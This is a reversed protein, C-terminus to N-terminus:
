YRRSFRPNGRGHGRGRARGGRGRGRGHQPRSAATNLSKYENNLRTIVEVAPLNRIAEEIARRKAQRKTIGVGEYSSPLGNITCRVGVRPEEDPTLAEYTEFAIRDKGPFTEYLLATLNKSPSKLEMDISEKLMPYYISWVTDLSCGSDLYIAGAVSEFVDGLLKVVSDFDSMDLSKLEPDDELAMRVKSLEDYVQDNFYQIFLDYNYKMAVRAFSYNNVLASRSATMQGPDFRTASTKALTITVLFDLIADGLFELREYSRTVRTPSTAHTFAQILYSPDQFKYGLITEFKVFKARLDRYQKKFLATSPLDGDSPEILATPLRAFVVATENLEEFVGDRFINLGLWDIALIAEFEGGYILCSGVISEFLDALDKPRMKNYITLPDCKIPRGLAYALIDSDFSRGIAYVGLKNKKALYTFHTNGVLRSRAATLFGENGQIQGFLVVSVVYKLYSDGLHELGELNYVQQAKRQTLAELFGRERSIGPCIRDANRDLSLPPCISKDVVAARKKFEEDENVLWADGVLKVELDKLIDVIAQSNVRLENSLKWLKEACRASRELSSDVSLSQTFKYSLVAINKESYESLDWDAMKASDDFVESKFLSLGLMSDYNVGAPANEDGDSDCDGPDTSGDSEHDDYDSDEECDFEEDSLEDGADTITKNNVNQEDECSGLDAQLELATPTVPDLVKMLFMERRRHETKAMFERSLESVSLSNYISYIIEPKNYCQLVTAPSDDFHELFQLLIFISKSEYDDKVKKAPRLSAFGKSITKLEVVPQNVTTLVSREYKRTVFEEFTLRTGPVISKANMEHHVKVVILLASKERYDAYVERIRVVDGQAIEPKYGSFTKRMRQIDLQNSEDLLVFYCQCRARLEEKFLDRLGLVRTILKHTFNLLENHVHLGPISLNEQVVDLEVKMVGYHGHLEKPSNDLNTSSDVILGFQPQEFLDITDSRSQHIVPKYRIRLLKYTRESFNRSLNGTLSLIKPEFYRVTPDDNQKQLGELKPELPEFNPQLGSTSLVKDTNAESIRTPVGHEDLEKAEYLARVAAVAASDDAEKFDVKYEGAVGGNLPCGAPLYLITRFLLEKRERQYRIGEAFPILRCIRGCYLNLIIKAIPPTIRISGEQSTFCDGKDETSYERIRQNDIPPQYQGGSLVEKITVEFDHFIDLSQQTEKSEGLNCLAVFTSDRQRARGRSQVFERFNKARDYRIVTSCTPLDIGEELVSTTVIVNLSGARFDDLVKKQEAAKRKTICSYKSAMTAALGVAYNCRIFKYRDLLAVRQIWQTLAVVELRSSVFVICSFQVDREDSLTRRYETELIDLLALSKTRAAALVDESPGIYDTLADRLKTLLEAFNTYLPKMDLSVCPNNGHQNIPGILKDCIGRLAWLGCRGRVLSLADIVKPFSSPKISFGTSALRLRNYFTLITKDSDSLSYPKFKLLKELDKTKLALQWDTKLTDFIQTLTDNVNNLKDDLYSHIVMLPRIDQVQVDTICRGHLLHEMYFIESRIYTRDKPMNNLMSATLGILRPRLTDTRTAYYAGYSNLIQGYPHSSEKGKKTRCAHHVEDFVVACFSPWSLLNTQIASAFIQPTM